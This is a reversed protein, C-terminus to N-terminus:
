PIYEVSKAEHSPQLQSKLRERVSGLSERDATSALPLSNGDAEPTRFDRSTEDALKVIDAVQFRNALPKEQQQRKRTANNTQQEIRPTLLFEVM